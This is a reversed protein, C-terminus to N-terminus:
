REPSPLRSYPPLIETPCIGLHAQNPRLRLKCCEDHSRGTRDYALVSTLADINSNSGRFIPEFRLRSDKQFLDERMRALNACRSLSVIRVISSAVGAIIELLRDIGPRFGRRNNANAVRGGSADFDHAVAEASAADCNQQLCQFVALSGQKCAPKSLPVITRVPDIPDVFALRKISPLCQLNELFSSTPQIFAKNEATEAEKKLNQYATAIVGGSDSLDRRYCSCRCISGSSVQLQSFQAATCSKCLQCEGLM